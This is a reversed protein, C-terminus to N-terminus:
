GTQNRPQQTSSRDDKGHTRRADRLTDIGGKATVVAIVIGIALDPWPQHLWAVLAGAAIVGFNSFLDNVSFTWVARLDVSGEHHGRLLRLCVVNVAGALVSMLMMVPGMPEAGAVLKRIVESVVGVSLVLLMVGSVQAARTKWRASRSVAYYSIAYVIADSVSDLANAILASSEALVGALLLAVALAVNLILSILLASRPADAGAEIESDTM